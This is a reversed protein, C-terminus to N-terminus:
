RATRITATGKCRGTYTLKGTFSSGSFRGNVEYLLVEGTPAPFKGVVATGKVVGKFTFPQTGQPKFTGDAAQCM